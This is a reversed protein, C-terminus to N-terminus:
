QLGTPDAIDGPEGLLNGEEDVLNGLEDVYNGDTDILNGEEDILLLTGMPGQTDLHYKHCTICTSQLREAAHEGGHCSRCTGIDPMLVDAADISTDAEHCGVCGMNIHKDHSFEALPLWDDTLRVPLIKWPIEGEQPRIEHCTRCTQREFLNTAAEKVREDIFVKAKLSMPESTLQGPMPESIVQRNRRKGPRRAERQRSAGGVNPPAAQGQRALGLNQQQFFQYAYYGELQRLLEGPAGHPVVRDPSEPDFTLQHCSACHKEMTVPSMRLGGKESVHCSTCELVVVSDVSEIGDESMHVEHPFKLNSVEALDEDWAEVRQTQWTEDPLMELVSVKFSPHDELFDTASQLKSAELGVKELDAHCDTCLKQDSRVIAQPGNHERHCDQCDSGVQNDRHVGLSEIDFHHNVSLHCTLCEENRAPVFPITHCAECSDSLFAHSDHLTGALWQRDDPVAAKRMFDMGTLFGVSPILVSVSLILWFMTWSLRRVPFSLQWLRTKFRDRLPEVNSVKIEVEILYDTDGEPPLVSFEHGLIDIVDGPKLTAQRSTLTNVSFSRSRGAKLELKNKGLFLL